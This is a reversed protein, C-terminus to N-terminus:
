IVLRFKCTIHDCGSIKEVLIGCGQGPCAKAGLTEIAKKTEREEKQKDENRRIELQQQEIAAQNEAHTM